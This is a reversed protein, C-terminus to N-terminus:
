FKLPNFISLVVNLAYKGIQYIVYMPLGIGIFVSVFTYNNFISITTEAFFSYMRMFGEGFILWFNLLVKFVGDPLLSIVDM